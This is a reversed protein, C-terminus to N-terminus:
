RTTDVIVTGTQITVWGWKIRAEMEMRQLIQPTISETLLKNADASAQAEILVVKSAAEAQLVKTQAEIEAKAQAQLATEVAKKAVAEAEIAAEIALGADTDTLVLSVFEIGSAALREKVELEILTYVENRKEGLIDIVNYKTTVSEISRQAIPTIFSDAVNDLTRFDLFVKLANQRSIRYKVDMEIKIWQADKTQGSLGEVKKTKIDTPIIYITDFPTKFNLGESLIDQSIGSFANFKIGVSNAPVFKVISFPLYALIVLFALLQLSKFRFRVNGTESEMELGLFIFLAIFIVSVIILLLM